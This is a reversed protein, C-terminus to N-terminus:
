DKGSGPPTDPLDFLEPNDIEFVTVDRRGIPVNDDWANILSKAGEKSISIIELGDPEYSGDFAFPVWMGRRRMFSGHGAIVFVLDKVVRTEPDVYVEGYETPASEKKRTSEKKTKQTAKERAEGSSASPKITDSPLEDKPARRVRWEGEETFFLLGQWDEKLFPGRTLRLELSDGEALEIEMIPVPLATTESDWYITTCNVPVERGNSDPTTLYAREKIEGARDVSTYGDPVEQLPDYAVFIPDPGSAADTWWTSVPYGGMPGGSHFLAMIVHLWNSSYGITELYDGEALTAIARPDGEELETLVSLWSVAYEPTPFRLNFPGAFVASGPDRVSLSYRGPDKAVKRVRIDWVGEGPLMGALGM